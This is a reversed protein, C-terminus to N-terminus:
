NSVVSVLVTIVNDAKSDKIVLAGNGLLELLLEAVPGFDPLTAESSRVAPAATPDVPHIRIAM